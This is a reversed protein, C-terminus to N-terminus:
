QLAKSPLFVDSIERMHSRNATIQSCFMTNRMRLFKDTSNKLLSSRKKRSTHYSTYDKGDSGNDGSSNCLYHYTELHDNQVPTSRKADHCRRLVRDIHKKGISM